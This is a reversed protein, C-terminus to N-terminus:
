RSGTGWKTTTAVTQLCCPILSQVERGAPGEAPCPSRAWFSPYVCQTECKTLGSPDTSNWIYSLSAEPSVARGRQSEPAAWPRLSEEGRPSHVHATDRHAHASVQIGDLLKSMCWYTDAEINRLVEAPVGSVDVM